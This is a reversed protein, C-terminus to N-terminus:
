IRKRRSKQKKIKNYIYIIITYITGKGYLLYIGVRIKKSIYKNKLYLKRNRKIADILEKKEKGKFGNKIMENLIFIKINIEYAEIENKLDVRKERFFAKAEEIGEFIDLRKSNFKQGMISNNRQLYYYLEDSIMAVKKSYYYLKYTTFNDEHYKGVPFYINNDKFLEIKYLKNWTMVETNQEKCFIDKLAEINNYIKNEKDKRKWTNGKEDIYLFDCVSIDANNKVICELLLKVYDPHVFDDSDVFCIYQGKANDMGTNRAASLGQNLQSIIKIRNDEKAKREAIILSNDKSGDNIVLIEINKYTQNILSDLCKEIYKEVNYMPVVITVLFNNEM